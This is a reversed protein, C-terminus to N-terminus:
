KKEVVVWANVNEQFISTRASDYSFMAAISEPNLFHSRMLAIKEAVAVIKVVFKTIDPEEIILKGGSKLVRWLESATEEQNSVHHLADIMIIRDFSGDEFPLIESYSCIKSIRGKDAAQQLMGVSLDVLFVEAAKDILTQAIRGTGGGADLLAGDVPLELLAELYKTDPVSIVRDYYPALFNFHDFVPM